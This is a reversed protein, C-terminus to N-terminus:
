INSDNTSNNEDKFLMSTISSQFTEYLRTFEYDLDMDYPYTLKMMPQEKVRLYCKSTFM